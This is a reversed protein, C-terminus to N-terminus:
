KSRNKYSIVIGKEIYNKLANLLLAWCYSTHRFHHNQHLWNKHWFKLIVGDSVDEFDFGFSTPDWDEDSNTMKLHFGKLTDSFIVKAYWNYDESFYFNYESGVLPFGKSKLTWWNNLHKPLTLANFIKEKKAQIIIDHYISYKM